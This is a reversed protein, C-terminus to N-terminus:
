EHGPPEFDAGRQVQPRQVPYRPERRRLALEVCVIVPHLNDDFTRVKVLSPHNAVEVGDVGRELRGDSWELALVQVRDPRYPHFRDRDLDEGTPKM